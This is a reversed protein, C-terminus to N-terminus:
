VEFQLSRLDLVTYNSNSFTDNQICFILPQNTLPLDIVRAWLINSLPDVGPQSRHIFIWGIDVLIPHPVEMNIFHVLITQFRRELQFIRQLLDNRIFLELLLLSQPLTIPQIVQVTWESLLIAWCM